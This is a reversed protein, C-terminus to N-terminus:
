SSYQLARPSCTSYQVTYYSVFPGTMLTADVRRRMLRTEECGFAQVSDSVTASAKAARWVCVMAAMAVFAVARTKAAAAFVLM